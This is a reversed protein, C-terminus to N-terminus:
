PILFLIWFNSDLRVRPIYQTQNVAHICKEHGKELVAGLYTGAKSIRGLLM